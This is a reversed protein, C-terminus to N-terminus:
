QKHIASWPFLSRNETQKGNEKGTQLLVCTSTAMKRKCFEPFMSVHFCPSMSMLGPFMSFHLCPSVFVHICPCPSMSVYICSCPSMSVYICSCPSMSIFPFGLRNKEIRKSSEGRVSPIQRKDTQLCLFLRFIDTQLLVLCVSRALRVLRVQGDIPIVLEEYPNRHQVLNHSIESDSLIEEM